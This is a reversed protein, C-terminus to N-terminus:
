QTTCLLEHKAKSTQSWNSWRNFRNWGWNSRLCAQDICKGQNWRLSSGLVKGVKKDVKPMVKLIRPGVETWSSHSSWVTVLTLGSHSWPTILTRGIPLWPIVLTHGIHSRPICPTVLRRGTRWVESHETSWQRQHTTLDGCTNFHENFARVNTSASIRQLATM